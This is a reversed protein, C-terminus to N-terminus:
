KEDCLSKLKETERNQREPLKVSPFFALTGLVGLTQLCGFISYIHIGVGTIPKMGLLLFQKYSYTNIVLSSELLSHIERHNEIGQLQQPHFGSGPCTPPFGMKLEGADPEM